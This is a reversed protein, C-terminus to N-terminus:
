STGKLRILVAAKKGTRTKRTVKLGDVVKVGLLIRKKLGTIRASVTQHPQNMKEELQDCTLGDDGASYLLRLIWRDAKSRVQDPTTAFAQDSEPNNQHHSVTPDQDRHTPKTTDRYQQRLAKPKPLPPFQQPKQDFLDTM